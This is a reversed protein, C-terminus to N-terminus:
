NTDKHQDHLKLGLTGQREAGPVLRFWSHQKGSIREVRNEIKFGMARLELPNKRQVAGRPLPYAPTGVWNGHAEVLEGLIKGRQGMRDAATRKHALSM